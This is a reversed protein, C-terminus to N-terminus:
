ERWFPKACEHGIDYPTVGADRMERATMQARDARERLRILWRDVTGRWASPKARAASRMEPWLQPTDIRTLSM